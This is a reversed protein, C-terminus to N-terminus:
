MTLEQIIHADLLHPLKCVMIANVIDGKHKQLARIAQPRTVKAQTMVLEVDKLTAEDTPEQVDGADVEEVKAESPAKPAEAVEDLGASPVESLEAPLQSSDMKFQDAAQSALQQSSDEM